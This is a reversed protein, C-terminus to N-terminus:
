RTLPHDQNALLASTIPLPSALRTLASVKSDGNGPSIGTVITILNETERSITTAVVQIQLLDAYDATGHELLQALVKRLIGEWTEKNGLIDMLNQQCAEDFITAAQHGNAAVVDNQRM